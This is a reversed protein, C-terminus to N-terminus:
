EGRSAPIRFETHHAYSERLDTTCSGDWARPHGLCTYLVHSPDSDRKGDSALASNKENQVPFKRRLCGKLKRKLVIPRSKTTFSVTPSGPQCVVEISQSASTRMAVKCLQRGGPFISDRRGEVIVARRGAVVVTAVARVVAPTAVLDGIAHRARRAHPAHARERVVFVGAARFRSEGAGFYRGVEATAESARAAVVWM